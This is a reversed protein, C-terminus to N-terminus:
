LLFEKIEETLNGTKCEEARVIARIDAVCADICGERNFVVYDYLASARLEREAIALRRSMEAESETGRGALRSRLVEKSEPAIFLLLADPCLTRINLGGQVDIKLVVNKGEALRKEVYARPTGYYNGNYVAYELFKSEGIMGRFTEEPLFFYDAGDTEGERRARTTASVSQVFADDAAYLKELVTDKGVGSPGSLVILRGKKRCETM